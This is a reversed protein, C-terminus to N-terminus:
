GFPYSVVDCSSTLVHVSPHQRLAGAQGLETGRGICSAACDGLVCSCVLLIWLVVLKVFANKVPQHLLHM